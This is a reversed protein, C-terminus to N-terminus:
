NYLLTAWLNSNPYHANNGQGIKSFSIFSFRIEARSQLAKTDSAAGAWAIVIPTASAGALKLKESV